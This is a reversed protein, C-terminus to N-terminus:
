GEFRRGAWGLTRSGSSLPHTRGRSWPTASLRGSPADPWASSGWGGPSASTGVPIAPGMQASLRPPPPPSPLSHPRSLFSSPMSPPFSCPSTHPPSSLPSHPPSSDSLIRSAPPLWISVSPSSPLAHLLPSPLFCSPFASLFFTSTYLNYPPPFTLSFFLYPRPRTGTSMENKRTKGCWSILAGDKWSRLASGHTRRIKKVCKGVCVGMWGTQLHSPGTDLIFGNDDIAVTETVEVSGWVEGGGYDRSAWLIQGWARQVGREAREGGSGPQDRRKM